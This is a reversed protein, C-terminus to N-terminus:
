ENDNDREYSTVVLYYGLTLMSVCVLAAGIVVAPFFWWITLLESM